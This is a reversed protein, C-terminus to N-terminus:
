RRSLTDLYSGPKFAVPEGNLFITPAGTGLELLAGPPLALYPVIRMGSMVAAEYLSV